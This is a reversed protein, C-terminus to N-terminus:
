FSILINASLVGPCLRDHKRSKFEYPLYLITTEYVRVERRCTSTALGSRERDRRRAIATDTITKESFLM